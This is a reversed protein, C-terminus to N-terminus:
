NGFEMSNRKKAMYVKDCIIRSLEALSARLNRLSESPHIRIREIAHDQFPAEVNHRRLHMQICM